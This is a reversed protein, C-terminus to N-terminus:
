AMLAPAAASLKEDAALVSCNNIDNTIKWRQNPHPQKGFDCALLRIRLEANTPSHSLLYWSDQIIGMTLGSLPLCISGLVGDTIVDTTWLEVCLHATNEDAVYFRLTQNWVPNCTNNVIKTKYTTDGLRVCCYPDPMCPASQEHLNRAACICVQLKGM